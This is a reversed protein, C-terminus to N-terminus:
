PLKPKIPKKSEKEVPYVAQHQELATILGEMM